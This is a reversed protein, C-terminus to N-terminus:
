IIRVIDYLTSEFFPVSKLRQYLAQIRKSDLVITESGEVLINSAQNSIPKSKSINLLDLLFNLFQKLNNDYYGYRKYVM